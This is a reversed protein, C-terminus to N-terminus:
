RGFQTAIEERCRKLAFGMTRGSGTFNHFDGTNPDAMEVHVRAPDDTPDSRMWDGVRTRDVPLEITLKTLRAITIVEGIFEDTFMQGDATAM